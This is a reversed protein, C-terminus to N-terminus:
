KGKRKFMFNILYKSNIGFRRNVYFFSLLLYVCAGIAIQLSIVLIDPGNIGEGIRQVVLKMVVGFIIFPASHAVYKGVPLETRVVFTQGICATAEAGLTGIVAGWAGLVPILAGNLLLNVVAGLVISVTYENDYKHPIIYQTRVVNGWSTFLLSISLYSILQACPAYEKGFFWPTFTEAIGSIGFCLASAMFVVFLISKYIMDQIMAEEKKSALHSMRPLMVSGFATIIGAPLNVIKDANEYYGTQTMTSFAGLMVKDMVRYVSMALVPLFLIINPKLHKMVAKASPKVVNVYRRVFPWLVIQNALFSGAIILTYKWCDDRTKVFLFICIVSAIKVVINRTVTLKFQELSFFLWSIDLVASLVYLGNLFLLVRNEGEFCLSLAIYAIVCLVSVMLQMVYIEWFTRSLTEINNRVFACSRNGYNAVGLMAVLVFYKAISQTYSFSGLGDPGLVRSVYPSTILPLIVLLIQYASSYLFNKKLSAM